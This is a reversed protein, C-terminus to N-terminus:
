SIMLFHLNESGELIVLTVGLLAWPLRKAEIEVEMEPDITSREKSMKAFTTNKYFVCPTYAPARKQM